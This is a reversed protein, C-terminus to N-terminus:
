KHEYLENLHGQMIMAAVMPLVIGLILLLTAKGKLEEARGIMAGLDGLGQGALYYFYANVPLCCGALLAVPTSILERGSIKNLVEAVKMNWYILYLGLTCFGLVLVLIPSNQFVPIQSREVM